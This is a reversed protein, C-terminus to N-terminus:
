YKYEGFGNWIIFGQKILSDISSESLILIVRVPTSKEVVFSYFDQNGQKVIRCDQELVLSVQMKKFIVDNTCHEMGRPLVMIGSPPGLRSIADELTFIEDIKVNLSISDVINKDYATDIRGNGEGPLTTFTGALTNVREISQVSKMDKRQNLLSMAQEFTTLGPTIGKWCPLLCDEAGPLTDLWSSPHKIVDPKSELLACASLFLVMLFCPLYIRIRM